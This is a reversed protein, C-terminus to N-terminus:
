DAARPAAPPGPAPEVDYWSNKKLRVPELRLFAYAMTVWCVPHYGGLWPRGEYHDLGLEGKLERDDQEIRGRAKAIRVFRRLGLPPSGLQALWDQTPPEEGEPWEVRRWERVRQPHAHESWGHAAWIPLLAFRSGQAGRSGQRWTVHRWASAPLNQAVKELSEPRALAEPPPYRRPRGMKKKPAPVPLNPNETWVATPPEVQVAYQLHRERWAQRFGFDNGDASDAVGPLPPRGWALAQDVAELALPTKSRYVTGPPLKVEAARQKDERWEKPLYLGWWIPCRAEASSWHLSVAVPCHAMKGLAGGDPRAVGVSPQGAKPFSTEDVVWVEAESVWDVVQHALRRPVEEVTWPSQGVFQRLAQVDAGELRSAM